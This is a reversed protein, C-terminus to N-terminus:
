GCVSMQSPRGIVEPCRSPMAVEGPCGPPGGSWERVDCVVGSSERVNPLADWDSGSLRSPRGIVGPCGRPGGSWERVDKLAERGSMSM